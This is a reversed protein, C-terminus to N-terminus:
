ETDTDDDEDAGAIELYREFVREVEDEDTPTAYVDNGEADKEIRLVVAEDEDIDEMEEAPALVVYDRGEFELTMLHEFRCERDNEDLLTVINEEDREMYNDEM